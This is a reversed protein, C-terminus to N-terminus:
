MLHSPQSIPNSINNPRLHLSTVMTTITQSWLLLTPPTISFAMSSMMLCIRLASNPSIDLIDVDLVCGRTIRQIVGILNRMVMEEGRLDVGEEGQMYHQIGM